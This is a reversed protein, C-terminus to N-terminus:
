PPRWCAEAFRFLTAMGISQPPMTPLDLAWWSPLRDRVPLFNTGSSLPGRPARCRVLDYARGWRLPFIAAHFRPSATTQAFAPSTRPAGPAALAQQLIITSPRQQPPAIASPTPEMKARDGPGGPPGPREFRSGSICITEGNVLPTAQSGPYLWSSGKRPLVGAARSTGPTLRRVRLTLAHPAPPRETRPPHATNVTAAPTPQLM